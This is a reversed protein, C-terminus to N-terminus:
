KKVFCEIRKTYFGQITEEKSQVMEDWLTLANKMLFCAIVVWDCFGKM